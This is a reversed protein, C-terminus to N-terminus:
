EHGGPGARIGLSQIFRDLRDLGTVATDPHFFSVIYKGDNTLGQFVYVVVASPITPTAHAYRCVCRIGSGGSFELRRLLAPAVQPADISPFVPIQETTIPPTSSILGQLTNLRKEFEMREVGRFLEWYPTTPYILLQRQGFIEERSPRENDFAFRLHEPEGNMFPPSGSRPEVATAVQGTFVQAIQRADCSVQEPTLDIHRIERGKKCGAMGIAAFMLLLACRTSPMMPWPVDASSFFGM